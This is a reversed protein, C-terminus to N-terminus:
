KYIVKLQELWRKATAKQKTYAPKDKLTVQQWRDGMCDGWLNGFRQVGYKACDENYFVRYKTM